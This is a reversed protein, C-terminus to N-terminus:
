WTLTEKKSKKKRFVCYLRRQQEHAYMFNLISSVMMIPEGVNFAGGV